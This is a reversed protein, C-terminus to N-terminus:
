LVLLLLTPYLVYWWCGAIACGYFISRVLIEKTFRDEESHARITSIGIPTETFQFLVPSRTISNIRKLQHWRHSLFIGSLMFRGHFILICHQRCTDYSLRWIEATFSDHTRDLREYELLNTQYVSSYFRLLEPTIASIVVVVSIM